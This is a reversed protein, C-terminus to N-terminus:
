PGTVMVTAVSNMLPFSMFGSRPDMRLPDGSGDTWEDLPYLFLSRGTAIDTSLIYCIIEEIIWFPM